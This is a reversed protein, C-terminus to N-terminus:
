EKKPSMIFRGNMDVMANIELPKGDKDFLQHGDNPTQGGVVPDLTSHAIVPHQMMNMMQNRTLIM